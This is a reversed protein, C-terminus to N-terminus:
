TRGELYPTLLADLQDLDVTAYVATDDEAISGPCDHHEGVLEETAVERGTRLEYLTLRCRATLMPVPRGSGPAVIGPAGYSCDIPFGGAQANEAGSVPDLRELRAVLQVDAPDDPMWRSSEDDEDDEDDVEPFV